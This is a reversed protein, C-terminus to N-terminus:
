YKGFEVATRIMALFNETRAYDPVSNSSGLCYGGGPGVREIRQRVLDAVQEPTGRSLLDVDINGCLCLRKGYTQKLEAIDMAKPEIPHLASVGSDLIDEFVDFLLGDTHYILPKGAARAYDGIQKLLPFFYERLFAPSVMLSTSYAIDDSYWLAKIWDMKAMNEFMSLILSSIKDFLAEILEPEEYMAMSFNEFGMLEWSTTFIDGYQGIVMMNDPIVKSAEECREYSIDEISPWPYAEFSAMDTILGEHEASWARDPANKYQGDESKAMEAKKRNLEFSIIPQVKVFDYGHNSMFEVDDSVSRVPRGLLEEKIQPAIGLEILPVADPQGGNLATLLREYDPKRLPKDM